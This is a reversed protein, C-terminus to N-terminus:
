PSVSVTKTEGGIPSFAEVWDVGDLEVGDLEVGDLEVGDLEVGDLEVGDLEADVV